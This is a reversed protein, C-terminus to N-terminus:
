WIIITYFDAKTFLFIWTPLILWFTTSSWNYVPNHQVQDCLQDLEMLPPILLQLSQVMNRPTRSLAETAKNELGALVLNWLWFRATQNGVESIRLQHDKAGTFIGPEAPWKPYYIQEGVLLLVREPCLIYHDTTREYVSKQQARSSLMHSFFSIPHQDQMLVPGLGYGLADIDLIFPNTLDPSHPHPGFVHCDKIRLLSIGKWCVLPICRRKVLSVDVLPRAMERYGKVLRHYYGMLGVFVPLEKLSRASPWNQM